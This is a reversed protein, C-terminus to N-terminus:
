GPFFFNVLVVRGNFDSLHRDNGSLTKLRYDPFEWGRRGARAMIERTLDAPSRNIEDALQRARTWLVPEPEFSLSELFDDLAAQPRNLTLRLTGRLAYYFAEEGRTDRVRELVDLSVEPEGLRLLLTALRFYLLPFKERRSASGEPFQEYRMILRQLHAVQQQENKVEWEGPVLDYLQALARSQEAQAAQKGLEEARTLYDNRRERDFGAATRLLEPDVENELVRRALERAGEEDGIRSLIRFEAAFLFFRLDSDEGDELFNRERRCLELALLPDSELWIEVLRGLAQARYPSRPYDELYASLGAVLQQRDSLQEIATLELRQTEIEAPSPADTSSCAALGLALVTFM